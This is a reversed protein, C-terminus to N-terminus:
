INFVAVAVTEHDKYMLYIMQSKKKKQFIWSLCACTLSGQHPGQDASPKPEIKELM